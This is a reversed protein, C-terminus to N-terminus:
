AYVQQELERIAKEHTYQAHVEQTTPILEKREIAQEWPRTVMLTHVIAGAINIVPNSDQKATKDQVFSLIHNRLLVCGNIYFTKCSESLATKLRATYIGFADPRESDIPASILVPNDKKNKENVISMLKEPNGWWTSIVGQGYDKQIRQAVEIIRHPDDSEYEELCHVINTKHDVGTTILFGDQDFTPLVMGGTIHSYQSDGDTWAFPRIHTRQGIIEAIHQNVVPDGFLQKTFKPM